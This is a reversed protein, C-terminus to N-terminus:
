RLNFSPRVDTNRVPHPSLAIEASSGWHHVIDVASYWDVIERLSEDFQRTPKWGLASLKEFTLFYRSDNFPRDKVYEIWQDTPDGPKVLAVLKRAVEINTFEDESGINYTEGVAGKHLILDFAKATDEVHLYHRRNTGNGHLCCKEGRLLRTICKPILKEVFQNPGFVNNGRTIIAPFDYSSVYGRVLSEAAAKSAAYPNTPNTASGEVKREGECSGYVEDTSVHIFRKVGAQKASELMVHTGFVNSRTFEFSNGFSADVHSQAAIHVIADIKETALIYSVLDSSTIDGKIFKYNPANECEEVNVPSSCAELIDLNVINYHPYERVLRRVFHSGIFGCGGTVLVNM